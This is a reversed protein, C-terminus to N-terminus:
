MYFLWQWRTVVWNCYIFIIIIIINNNNNNNNNTRKICLHLYKIFLRWWSACYMDKKKLQNQKHYISITPTPIWCTKLSFQVPQALWGTTTWKLSRCHITWNRPMQPCPLSRDLPISKHFYCRIAWHRTRGPCTLSHDLPLGCLVRCRITWHCERLSCWLSQDLTTDKTFM